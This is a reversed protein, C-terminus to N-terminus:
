LAQITAQTSYECRLTINWKCRSSFIDHLGGGTRAVIQADTPITTPKGQEWRGVIKVLVTMAIGEPFLQINDINTNCHTPVAAASMVRWFAPSRLWRFTLPFDCVVLVGVLYSIKKAKNPDLKENHFAGSVDAKAMFIRNEAYKQKLDIPEKLFKPLAKAVCDPNEESNADGNLGGKKQETRIETM